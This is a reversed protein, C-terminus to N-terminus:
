TVIIRNASEPNISMTNNMSTIKSFIIGPKGFKISIEYKNKGIGILLYDLKHELIKIENM